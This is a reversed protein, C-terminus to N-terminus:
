ASTAVSMSGPAPRRGLRPLLALVALAYAMVLGITLLRDLLLPLATVGAQPLVVGLLVVQVPLGAQAVVRRWGTGDIGAAAWLSGALALPLLVLPDPRIAAVAVLPLVLAAAVANARLLMLGQSRAAAAGLITVATLAVLVASNDTRGVVVALIVVLGLGRGLADVVSAEVVSAEVVSAGGEMRPAAAASGAARPSPLLAHAILTVVIAQATATVMLAPVALGLGAAWQRLVVVISASILTLMAPLDRPRRSLRAFAATAIALLAIWVAAPSDALGVFLRSLVWTVGGVLVLAGALAGLRPRAPSMALFVVLLNPALFPLPDGQAMNWGLLLVPAVGLRFAARSLV